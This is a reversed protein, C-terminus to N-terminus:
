TSLLQSGIGKDRVAPEVAISALYTTTKENIEENIVYGLKSGFAFGVPNKSTQDNIRAVLCISDGAELISDLYSDVDKKNMRSNWPRKKFTRMFLDSIYAKDEKSCYGIELGEM